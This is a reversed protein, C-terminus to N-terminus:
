VHSVRFLIGCWHRDKDVDQVNDLCVSSIASCLAQTIYRWCVSYSTDRAIASVEKPVFTKGAPPVKPYFFLVFPKKGVCLLIPYAIDCLLLIIAYTQRKEVAPLTGELSSLAMSKGDQTKLQRYYDPYDQMREGVQLAQPM